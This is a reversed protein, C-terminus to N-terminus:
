RGRSSSQVSLSAGGRATGSVPRGPVSVDLFTSGAGLLPLTRSAVAIKLHINAPAGLVLQAGSRLRFVLVGGPYSAVRVRAAFSGALGLVRTVAAGDAPRLEAGKRLPASSQVWIRPLEPHAHPALRGIVRGRVSVLWSDAGRRLVAVPREPVVHVRLTHPFARDYSARVVTPLAEVRRVVASGDLRVLSTGLFSGLARTVQAEVQPSGGRVEITRVAFLSTERALAYAGLALAIIGGGVVLARRSPRHRLLLSRTRVPVPRTQRPLAAAAARAPRRGSDAQAPV